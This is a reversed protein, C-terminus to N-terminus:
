PRQPKVSHDEPLLHGKVRGLVLMGGMALLWVLFAVGSIRHVPTAADIWIFQMAVGVAVSAIAFYKLRGGVRWHYGASGMLALGAVTFGVKGTFWRLFALMETSRDVPSQGVVGTLFAENVGEASLALGVACVGSVATFIGSAIMIVPVTPASWRGGDAWIKLVYGAGAILTIGSAFRAIGGISYLYKNAAIAALSELLTPQDAGSAVRTVISVVTAIATLLLLAGATRAATGPQPGAAQTSADELSASNPERRGQM